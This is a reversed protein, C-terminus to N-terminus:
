CRWSAVGMNGLPRLYLIGDRDCKGKMSSLYEPISNQLVQNAFMLIENGPYLFKQNSTNSYNSLVKVQLLNEFNSIIGRESTFSVGQIRIM